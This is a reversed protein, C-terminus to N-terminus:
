MANFDINNKSFGLYHIYSQECVNEFKEVKNNSKGLKIFFRAILM